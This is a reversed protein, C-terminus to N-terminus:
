FSLHLGHALSFPNGGKVRMWGVSDDMCMKDLTIRHKLLDYV